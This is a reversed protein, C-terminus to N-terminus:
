KAAAVFAALLADMRELSDGTVGFLWNSTYDAWQLTYAASRGSGPEEGTLMTSWKVWVLKDERGSELVVWGGGSAM